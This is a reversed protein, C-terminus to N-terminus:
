GGAAARERDLCERLDEPLPSTLDIREGDNIPHDFALRYAHLFQRALGHRDARRGYVPDGVVPFGASELHVRIQHTRGTELRAECLATGDFQELVRLHTVAERGRGEPVVAMRLRDRRHRAIPRDISFAPPPTGHVLVQYRREIKRERLMRQLRRHARESRAVVMLGSTDRDLRHVIGPRTPDDGGAAALGLLGHVLTGSAHGRAPHVVLGAPKDVVILHPDEYAIGFAIGADPVLESSPVARPHVVVESGAELADRKRPAQGNVEVRGEAILRQAAARSEIEPLGGIFADTRLGASAADVRVRIPPPDASV